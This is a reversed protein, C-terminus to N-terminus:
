NPYILGLQNHIKFYDYTFLVIFNWINEIFQKFM